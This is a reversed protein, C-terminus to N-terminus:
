RDRSTWIFKAAVNIGTKKPRPHNGGKKETISASKKRGGRYYFRGMRWGLHQNAGTGRERLCSTRERTIAKKEEGGEIRGM